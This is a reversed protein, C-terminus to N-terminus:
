SPMRTKLMPNCAGLLLLLKSLLLQGIRVGYIIKLFIPLLEFLHLSLRHIRVLRNFLSIKLISMLISSLRNYGRGLKIFRCYISKEYLFIESGINVRLLEYRGIPEYGSFSVQSVIQQM